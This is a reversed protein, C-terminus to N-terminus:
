HRLAKPKNLIESMVVAKRLDETRLKQISVAPQADPSAPRTMRRMHRDHETKSEGEHQTHPISGGICGESDAIGSKQLGAAQEIATLEKAKPASKGNAKAQRAAEIAKLLENADAGKAAAPKKASQAPLAVERAPRTAKQAAAHGAPQVKSKQNKKKKSLKDILGIVVFFVIIGAFDEM